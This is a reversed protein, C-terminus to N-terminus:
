HCDSVLLFCGGVAELFMISLYSLWFNGKIVHAVMLTKSSFRYDPSHRALHAVKIDIYYIGVTLILRNMIWIMM